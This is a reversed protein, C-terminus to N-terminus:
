HGAPSVSCRRCPAAEFIEIEEGDEEVMHGLYVVGRYCAFCSREQISPHASSASSKTTDM